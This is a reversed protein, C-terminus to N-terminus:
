NIYNVKTEDGLYVKYVSSHTLTFYLKNFPTIQLLGQPTEAAPYLGLHQIDVLFLLGIRGFRQPQERLLALLHTLYPQSSPQPPWRQRCSQTPATAAERQQEPNGPINKMTTGEEEEAFSNTSPRSHLSTSQSCSIDNVLAWILWRQPKAQGSSGATM